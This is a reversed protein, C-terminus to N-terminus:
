YTYRFVLLAGLAHLLEHIARGENGLCNPGNADPAQLSVIQPGGFKGVFSWCGKPYKIPWILLYDKTKGNWPVFKICTMFSITRIATYITVYDDPDSFTLRIQINIKRLIIGIINAATM